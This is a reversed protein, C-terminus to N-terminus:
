KEKDELGFLRVGDSYHSYDSEENENDEDEDENRVRTLINMDFSPAMEMEEM